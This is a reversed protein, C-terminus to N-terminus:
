DAAPPKHVLILESKLDMFVSPRGVRDREFVPKYGDRKLQRLRHEYVWDLRHGRARLDRVVQENEADDLPDFRVIKPVTWEKSAGFIEVFLSGLAALDIM